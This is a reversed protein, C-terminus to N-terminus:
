IGARRLEREAALIARERSRTTVPPPVVIPEEASLRDFFRQLAEKSTCLSGGLKVTELKVWLGDKCRCGRLAWRYITAYNLKKGPVRSPLIKTAEKLSVVKETFVDIAM